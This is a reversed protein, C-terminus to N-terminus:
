IINQLLMEPALIAKLTEKNKNQEEQIQIIKAELVPVSITYSVEFEGNEGFTEDTIDKNGVKLSAIVHRTGDKDITLFSTNEPLNNIMDVADQLDQIVTDYHMDALTLKRTLNIKKQFRQETTLETNLTEM